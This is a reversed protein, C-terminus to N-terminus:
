GLCGLSNLAEVIKYNDINKRVDGRNRNKNYGFGFM